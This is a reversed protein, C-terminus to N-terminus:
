LHARMLRASSSVFLLYQERNDFFRFSRDPQLNVSM